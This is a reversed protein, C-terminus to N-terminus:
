QNAGCYPCFQIDENPPLAAQCSRCRKPSQAAGQSTAAGNNMDWGAEVASTDRYGPQSQPAPNVPQMPQMTPSYRPANWTGHQYGGGAAPPNYSSPTGYLSPSSQQRYYSSGAYPSQSVRGEEMDIFANGIRFFGKIHNVSTILTLIGTVAGVLGLISGMISLMSCYYSGYPYGCPSTSATLLYVLVYHSIILIAFGVGQSTSQFQVGARGKYSTLMQGVPQWKKHGDVLSYMGTIAVAFWNVLLLVARWNTAFSISSFGSAVVLIGTVAYLPATALMMILEVFQHKALASIDANNHQEGLSKLSKFTRIKYNLIALYFLLILGGIVCFAAIACGRSYASYAIYDGGYIYSGRSSAFGMIFFTAVTALPLVLTAVAQAFATNKLARGTDGFGAYQALSVM